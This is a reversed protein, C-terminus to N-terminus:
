VLTSLTECVQSHQKRLALRLAEVNRVPGQRFVDAYSTKITKLVAGNHFIRSVLYPNDFGWDETQIHFTKGRFLIDSNFGKEMGVVYLQWAGKPLLVAAYTGTAKARL